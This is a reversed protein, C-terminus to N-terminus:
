NIIDPLLDAGAHEELMRLEDECVDHLCRRRGAARAEDAHSRCIERTAFRWWWLRRTEANQGTGYRCLLLYIHRESSHRVRIIRATDLETGARHDVGNLVSRFRDPAIELRKAALDPDHGSSHRAGAIFRAAKDAANSSGDHVVQMDDPNLALLRRATALTKDDCEVDDSTACVSWCAEPLFKLNFDGEFYFGIIPTMLSLCETFQMFACKGVVLSSIRLLGFYTRDAVPAVVRVRDRVRTPLKKLRQECAEVDSTIFIAALEPDDLKGLISTGLAEVNLDYALVTILTADADGLEQALLRKAADADEDIYPPVQLLRDPAGEWHLSRPGALVIRDFVSSFEDWFVEVSHAQYANDLCVTAIGLEVAALLVELLQGGLPAEGIVVVDSAIQGLGALLRTRDDQAQEVGDSGDEWEVFTLCQEAKATTSDHFNERGPCYFFVEHGHEVAALAVRLGRKYVGILAQGGGTGFCYTVFLLKM